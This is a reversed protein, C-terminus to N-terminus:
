TDTLVIEVRQDPNIARLEDPLSDEKAFISSRSYKTKPVLEPRMLTSLPTLTSNDNKYPVTVRRPRKVSTSSLTVPTVLEMNTEGEKDIDERSTNGRSEERDIPTDETLTHYGSLPDAILVLAEKISNTNDDNNYGPTLAADINLEFLPDKNAIDHLTLDAHTEIRLPLEPTL